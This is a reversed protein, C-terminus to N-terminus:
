PAGVVTAAKAVVQSDIPNGSKDTLTINLQAGVGTETKDGVKLNEMIQPEQSVSVSM